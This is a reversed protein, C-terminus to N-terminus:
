PSERPRLPDEQRRARNQMFYRNLTGPYREFSDSGPSSEDGMPQGRAMRVSNTHVSPMHDGFEPPTSGVTIDCQDPMSKGREGEDGARRNGDNRIQTLNECIDELMPYIHEAMDPMFIEAIAHVYASLAMTLAIVQHLYDCVSWNQGFTSFCEERHAVYTEKLIHINRVCGSWLHRSVIMDMHQQPPCTDKPDKVLIRTLSAQIAMMSGELGMRPSRFYKDYAHPSDCFFYMGGCANASPAQVLSWFMSYALYYVPRTAISLSDFNHKIDRHTWRRWQAYVEYSATTSVLAERVSQACVEFDDISRPDSELALKVLTFMNEVAKRHTEALLVDAKPFQFLLITFISVVVGALSSLMATIAPTWSNTASYMVSFMTVGFMMFAYATHEFFKMGMFTVLGGVAVMALQFAQLELYNESGDSSIALGIAAFGFGAFSGLVTGLMRLASRVYFRETSGMEMVITTISIVSAPSLSVGTSQQSLVACLAGLVVAAVASLPGQLNSWTLKARLWNVQQKPQSIIPKFLRLVAQAHPNFKEAIHVPNVFNMVAHAPQAMKELIPMPNMMEMMAQPHRFAQSITARRSRRPGPDETEDAM